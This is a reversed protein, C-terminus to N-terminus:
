ETSNGTENNNVKESETVQITEPSQNKTEKKLFVDELFEILWIAGGCFIFIALDAKWWSKVVYIGSLDWTVHQKRFWSDPIFGFWNDIHKLIAHSWGQIGKFNIDIELLIYYAVDLLATLILLACILKLIGLVIKM